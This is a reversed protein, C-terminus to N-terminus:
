QNGRVFRISKAKPDFIQTIMPEPESLLAFLIDKILDYNGSIKEYLEDFSFTDQPLQDIVEKVSAETIKIMTQKRKFTRKPQAAQEARKARIRELLVTAPEGSPDQPVLEGRFAKSLLASTIQEVQKCANQYRVEVRDAYVFLRDLRDVIEQQEDLSPLSVPASMVTKQNIKPMNGSTGTAYKRFYSRVHDSSLLYYLFKTLVRDNARCKMMLDPYIYQKPLGEYIASVGVYELTNARQILIDNPQLWLYSDEPIKENIYKIHTPNFKGSTTATLTLSRTETEFNVSRPSYGNRPKEILLDGIVAEQWPESNNTNVWDKTLEGSIAATLVAQRFRELIHSVRELRDRCADVRALLSDLKDAIRKQENFPAIVMPLQAAVSGSIEKFTTGTAISEARPKIHKLYFYVFRSDLDEPLVFSKFGQNTTLENAAIAVYGIPARSSFLVSGQPIKAASCAWFGKESLNRAGRSIYIDKYGSLDAPTIWPVGGESTFNTLDKSPPTGGSVIQTVEGIKCCAWREPIKASM